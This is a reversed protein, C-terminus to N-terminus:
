TMKGQDVVYAILTVFIWLEILLIRTLIWRSSCFERTGILRRRIIRDFTGSMKFVESSREHATM